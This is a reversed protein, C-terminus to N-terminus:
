AQMHRGVVVKEMQPSANKSVHEFLRKCLKPPCVAEGSAVARIAGGGVVGREAPVRLSRAAGDRSFFRPKGGDWVAFTEAKGDAGGRESEGCDDAADWGFQAAVCRV